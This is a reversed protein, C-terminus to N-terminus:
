SERSAVPPLYREGRWWDVTHKRDLYTGPFHGVEKIVDLPITNDDVRVGDLYRGVMGCMKSDIVLQANSWLTYGEVMGAGWILNTGAMVALLWQMAKEYGAQEDPLKSDSM